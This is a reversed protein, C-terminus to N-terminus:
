DIDCWNLSLTNSKCKDAFYIDQYVYNKVLDNM